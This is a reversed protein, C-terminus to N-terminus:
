DSSKKRAVVRKLPSLLVEDVVTGARMALTDAIVRAVDEPEIANEPEPGPAFELSDFWPTRVPGPHVISIHVGSGQCEERLALAFGRLGFKAACYIAGQKGGRWAAESGVFILRSEDRKKLHPLAARAFM